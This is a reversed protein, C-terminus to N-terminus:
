DKMKPRATGGILVITAVGYTLIDDGRSVYAFYTQVV